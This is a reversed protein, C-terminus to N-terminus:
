RRDKWRWAAGSWRGIPSLRKQLREPRTRDGACKDEHTRTLDPSRASEPGEGARGIEGQGAGTGGAKENAAVNSKEFGLTREELDRRAREHERIKDKHDLIQREKADLADRLDLIDKEKKNIIERLSLLDREKSFAGQNAAHTMRERQEDQEKRVTQRETELSAIRAQLAAVRGSVDRGQLELGIKQDSIATAYRCVRTSPTCSRRRCPPVESDLGALM